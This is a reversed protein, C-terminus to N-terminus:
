IISHLIYANLLATAYVSLCAQLYGFRSYYYDRGTKDKLLKWDGFSAPASQSKKHKRKGGFTFAPTSKAKPSLSSPSTAVPTLNTKKAASKEMGPPRVWSSKGTVENFFYPLKRQEDFLEEWADEEDMVTEEEEDSTNSKYLYIINFPYIRLPKM